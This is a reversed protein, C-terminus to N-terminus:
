FHIKKLKKPYLTQNQVFINKRLYNRQKQLQNSHLSYVRRPSNEGQKLSGLHNSQNRCPQIMNHHLYLKMTVISDYFEYIRLLGCFKAFDGGYVQGKCQRGIQKTHYAMKGLLVAESSTPTHSGHHHEARTRGAGPLQPWKKFRM